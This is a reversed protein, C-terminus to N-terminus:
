QLATIVARDAGPGCMSLPLVATRQRWFMVGLCHLAAYYCHPMFLLVHLLPIIYCYHPYNPLETAELLRHDPRPELLLLQVTVDGQLWLLGPEVAGM